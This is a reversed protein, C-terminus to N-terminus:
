AKKVRVANIGKMGQELEFTVKDNESVSDILGSVHVFYKEENESDIIFGYGKSSDFYSVKGKRNPDIEEKERKPVGIEISDLSIEVKKKKPDPPTDTINGNEDIYAMMSELSGDTSKSKRDIKKAIKDQKKKSKKEEKAKKNFSQQSKAM